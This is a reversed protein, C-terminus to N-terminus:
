VEVLQLTVKYINENVMKAKLWAYFSMVFIDEEQPSVWDFSNEVKIKFAESQVKSQDEYYEGILKVFTLVREEGIKQLQKSFKLKFRQLRLLVLDLKDLETLVLIEILNKKLVWIWGMKKEYWNDSHNFSKIADYVKSFEEQQFFCMVMLLRADLSKASIQKLTEIARQPQNTYNYNLAKIIGLKESFQKYVAGKSAGMLGEMQSALQVSNEFSKQRFHTIALLNLIHIHYYRHKEQLNKKEEVIQYLSFMFPAVTYFNNQLKASHATIEMLQYLSKYSLAENIEIDFSEFTNQVVEKILKSDGDKLKAKIVAYVGNLHFDQQYRAMNETSIKVLQHIDITSSFHAYQIKTHYIENLLAYIDFQLALKEAKHLIRFAIKYAKREFFIRSALLLKLIELEESTEGAFSKGAIFDVLNDQLRKSLAHFSNLASKGYLKQDLGETHGNCVLKFLQENKVDSRRNKRRLYLLFEQREDSSLTDVISFLASM